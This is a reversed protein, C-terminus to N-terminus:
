ATRAHRSHRRAITPRKMLLPMGAVLLAIPVSALDLAFAFGLARLIGMSGPPDFDLGYDLRETLSREDRAAGASGRAM